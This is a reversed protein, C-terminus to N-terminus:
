KYFKFIGLRENKAKRKLLCDCNFQYKNKMTQIIKEYENEESILLYIITDDKLVLSLQEIFNFIIDSGTPGGAWSASIDTMKQANDLEENDTTVYPPNFIIIDLKDTVSQFINSNLFVCNKDLDYNTLLNTTLTLADQNIDICYHLYNKDLYNSEKIFNLFCCSIFGSGCGVEATFIDENKSIFHKKIKEEELKLIDIMLFTDEAPEYVNNFDNIVNFFDYFKPMKKSLIIGESYVESIKDWNPVCFNNNINM